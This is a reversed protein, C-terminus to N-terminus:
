GAVPTLRRQALNLLEDGLEVDASPGGGWKNAGRVAVVRGVKGTWVDAVMGEDGCFREGIRVMMGVEIESANM